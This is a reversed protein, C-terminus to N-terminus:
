RPPMLRQGPLLLNPDPGVVARNAAYWRPWAAAVQAETAQPGLHRAAIRWLSDGRRVVVVVDVVARGPTLIQGPPRARPQPPSEPRDLSPLPPGPTRAAPTRAAPPATATSTPSPRPGATRAALAPAAPASVSATAVAIGLAAEVARRLFAPVLRGTLAGALRGTLGPLQSCGVLLATLLLYLVCLEAALGAVIATTGDVSGHALLRSLEGSSRPLDGPRPGAWALVGAAVVFPGVSALRQIAGLQM